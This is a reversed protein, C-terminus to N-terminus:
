FWVLLTLISVTIDRGGSLRSTVSVRARFCPEAMSCPSNDLDSISLPSPRFTHRMCVAAFLLFIAVLPNKAMERFSHYYLALMWFQRDAAIERTRRRLTVCHSEITVLTMCSLWSHSAEWSACRRLRNIMVGSIHDSKTLRISHPQSRNSRLVLRLTPPLTM